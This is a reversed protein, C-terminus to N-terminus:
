RSRQPVRGPKGDPLVLRTGPPLKDGDEASKIPVPPREGNKRFEYADNMEHVKKMGVEGTGTAIADMMNRRREAKEAIDRPTDGPRPIFAPLNRLAESPSVAAGSVHTLFAAGWNGLADRARRYDDSIIMNGSGMPGLADVAADKMSTLAAGGKMEADVRDLDPKTRVIFTTAKAQTETLDEKPKPLGPPVAYPQPTGGPATPPREFQTGGAAVTDPKNLDRIAQQLKVRITEAEVPRNAAEAQEKEISLRRILDEQIRKGEQRTHTDKALRAAEWKERQNKYDETQRSQMDKRYGEEVAYMQAARTRATESLMPNTMQRQWHQQAQSPPLLGPAPPPADGPDKMEELAAPPIPERSPPVSPAQQIPAQQPPPAPVAGLTGPGIGPQMPPPRQTQAQALQQAIAARQPAPETDPTPMGGGLSALQVPAADGSMGVEDPGFSAGQRGASRVVQERSVLPINFRRGYEAVHTGLTDKRNPDNMGKEGAFWAAAAGNPGYKTMYEGGKATALQEQADPDALFQEPTMERGLYGKTWKPINEGMVQYKGYPYDGRRSREGVLTYADKRGGSENRAIRTKWEEISMSPQQAAQAPTIPKGDDLVGGPAQAQIDPAPAQSVPGPAAVPAAAPAAPAAGPVYSSGPPPQAAERDRGAQAAEYKALRSDAYGEGLSEGLYTLGEGITKPFPRNRTALAAAIKRRAQLQDYTLAGTRPDDSFFSPVYTDSM